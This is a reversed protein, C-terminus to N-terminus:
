LMNFCLESYLYISLNGLTKARPDLSYYIVFFASLLTGNWVVPLSQIGLVKRLDIFLRRRPRSHLCNGCHHSTSSTKRHHQPVPVWTSFNSGLHSVSSICVSHSSPFFGICVKHPLVVLFHWTVIGPYPIYSDWLHQQSTKVGSRFSDINKPKIEEKVQHRSPFFLQVAVLDPKEATHYLLMKHRAQPQQEQSLTRLRTTCCCGIGPRHNNSRLQKNETWLRQHWAESQLVVHTRLTHPPTTLVSSETKAQTFIQNNKM